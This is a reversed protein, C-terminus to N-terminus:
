HRPPDSSSAASAEVARITAEQLRNIQHVVPDLQWATLRRILRKVLAGGPRASGPPPLMLAPVRRLPASSRAASEGRPTAPLVAGGEAVIRGGRAAAARTRIEHQLRERTLEAPWAQRAPPAASLSGEGLAAAMARALGADDDVITVGPRDGAQDALGGVRTAIVPRDYLAAREFVSSSWIFRYPLVVADAAVIWRDFDADSVYETHLSAGPTAEVLAALEDLHDLYQAEEVRVSGVVDIRAGHNAGGSVAFARVARDFGKHPQIFGIALFLFPETPLGLAARAQERTSEVRRIFDSGHAGVVVREKPVGFSRQFDEREGDTHVVIRDVSRWLRHEALAAPGWGRGRRYDIEHVVVEVNRALHFAISLAASVSARRLGEIGTPYFFDPHFQVIIKDYGRVRKALALPGRPGLLDLHHHAASPGPSLVEVDHGDARLRAVTQAAYSAIGDRAPPYPTVVLIRM